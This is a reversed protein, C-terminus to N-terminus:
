VRKIQENLGMCCIKSMNYNTYFFNFESKIKLILIIV